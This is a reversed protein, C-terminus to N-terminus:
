EDEQADIKYIAQTVWGIVKFTRAYDDVLDVADELADPGDFTGHWQVAGFEDATFVNYFNGSTGCADVPMVPMVTQTM